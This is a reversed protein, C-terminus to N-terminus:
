DNDSDYFMDEEEEQKQSANNIKSSKPPSKDEVKNIDEYCGKKKRIIDGWLMYVNCVPCHGDIPLFFTRSENSKNCFNTSLCVM